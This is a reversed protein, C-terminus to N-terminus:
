KDRNMMFQMSTIVISYVILRGLDDVVQYEHFPIQMFLKNYLAFIFVGIVLNLIEQRIYEFVVKKINEEILRM